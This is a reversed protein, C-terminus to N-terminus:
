NAPLQRKVKPNMVLFWLPPLTALLMMGPYGTPLQPNDDYNDLLQYKKHSNAHHDSHRTLEFLMVRGVLHNSNWSHLPEVNEYRYKGIKKRKLGYHEIYNVTELLLIGFFAACIFGIVIAWPMLVAIIGILLAQVLTFQWMENELSFRNKKLRELRKNEIRWASIYSNIISRFWFFYLMENYRASAPDEKTAVNKHHGKNHEIFFHAYLSTYLLLKALGQEKGNTRHGLEHAVNIGLVGCLLGFSLIRGWFEQSFAPEKNLLFLFWLLFLYQLPVTLYLLWDYLKDKAATERELNKLNKDSASILIEMFPIIGFAYILPFFSLWGDYFFSVGVVFPISFSLLYKASKMQM